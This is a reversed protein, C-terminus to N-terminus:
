RFRWREITILMADIIKGVFRGGKHMCWMPVSLEKRTKMGETVNSVFLNQDQTCVTPDLHFLRIRGVKVWRKWWDCPVKLPYNISSLIEAARLNLVYGETYMDGVSPVMRWNSGNYRKKTHNSLLCVMPVDNTMNRELYGLADRFRDDLIADDELICAVPLHQGQITQCVSRHSMACGIEGDRVRRGVACWWRFGNVAQMKENQAMEHGNIASVRVYQVGLKGLRSAIFEKREINKDLNIVFVKM